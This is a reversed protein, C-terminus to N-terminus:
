RDGKFCNNPDIRGSNPLGKGTFGIYLYTVTKGIWETKTELIQKRQTYDGKFVCDFVNGNGMKITVNTAAGAWNGKGDTIALILGEADDEPKVKLLNMTRDHVYASNIRVIAGEYGDDMYEQFLAMVEDLSKAWVYPVPVVGPIGALLITLSDRREACPTSETIEKGNVTFGYADYVYYDVIRESKQFDEATITSLKQKRVVSILENLKYRLDHNYLEGDLVLNPFKEFLCKVRKWIHPASIVPEGKRTFPGAASTIQRMGNYKRDVMVPYPIVTKRKDINYALMPQIFKEQDIDGINEWYGGSKLKKEWKSQAESEAQADDTTENSRGVSKGECITWESIVQKAGQAGTITRYKGGNLEITWELVKTGKGRAYLIPLKM